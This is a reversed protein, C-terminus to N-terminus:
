VTRWNSSYIQRALEETAFDLMLWGYRAGTRLQYNKFNNNITSSTNAPISLTPATSFFNIFFENTPTGGGPNNLYLTISNWKESTGLGYRDQIHAINRPAGGYSANNGVSYVTTDKAEIAGSGGQDQWDSVNIGSNTNNFNDGYLNFRRVMVIKGRTQDLTPNTNELYWRNINSNIYGYLINQFTQNGNDNSGGADVKISMVITETGHQNLFDYCQQLIEDMFLAKGSENDANTSGHVLRLKGSEEKVRIDLVRVGNNLQQGVTTNQCKSFSSVIFNFNKAASDHTGPMNIQSLLLSGDIYRMWENSNVGSWNGTYGTTINRVSVPSSNSILGGSIQESWVEVQYDDLNEISEGLNYFAFKATGGVNAITSGQKLELIIGEASHGSVPNTIRARLYIGNGITADSYQVSLVPNKTTNYAGADRAFILYDLNAIFPNTDTTSGKMVLYIQQSGTIPQNLTATATEYTNWDAGTAPLAVTGILTGDISGLRVELRSDAACRNSNSAYHVSIRNAFDTGFDALYGVWAGDYTGGIQRGSGGNEVKLGGGSWNEGEAVEAQIRAYADYGPGAKYFSFYDFNGVWPGGGLTPGNGHFVFVLTQTGYLTEDLNATALLYDSWGSRADNLNVTGLLDGEATNERIEVYSTAYCSGARAYSLTIQNAGGAPMNVTYKAWAEDRVGALVRGSGGDEIKLDGGSWETLSEFQVKNDNPLLSVTGVTLSLDTEDAAIPTMGFCMALALVVALIRSRKKM